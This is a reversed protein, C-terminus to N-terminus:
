STTDPLQRSTLLLTGELWRRYIEVAVQEPTDASVDILHREEVGAAEFKHWLEAIVQEDALADAHQPEHRRSRVREIIVPLPARFVTYHLALGLPQCADVFLDIMEPYMVGDAVTFYGGAGFTALAAAAAALVIRNQQHSEELWPEIAGSCLKAFFWDLDLCVSREAVMPAVTTKGSGPCGTLLLVHGPV